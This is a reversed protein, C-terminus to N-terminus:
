EEEEDEDIPGLNDQVYREDEDPPVVKFPLIPGIDSNERAGRRPRRRPRRPGTRQSDPPPASEVLEADELTDLMYRMVHVMAEQPTSVQKDKPSIPVQITIGGTPTDDEEDEEIV